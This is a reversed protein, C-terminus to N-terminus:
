SRRPRQKVSAGGRRECRRGKSAANGSRLASRGTASLRRTTARATPMGRASRTTTCHRPNPGARLADSRMQSSASRPRPGQIGAGGGAKCGEESRPGGRQDRRYEPLPGVQSHEVRNCQPRHGCARSRSVQRGARGRCCKNAYTTDIALLPKTLALRSIAYGVAVDGGPHCKNPPLYAPPKRTSATSYLQDILTSVSKSAALEVAISQSLVMAYGMLFPFPGQQDSSSSSSKARRRHSRYTVKRHDHLLRPLRASPLTRRGAMIARRACSAERM